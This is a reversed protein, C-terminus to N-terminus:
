NRAKRAPRAAAPAPASETQTAAVPAAAVPAPTALSLRIFGDGGKTGARAITNAGASEGTAGSGVSAGGGGGANAQVVVNGAENKASRGSESGAQGPVGTYGSMPLTGGAQAMAETQNGGNGGSDGGSGGRSGGPAAAGGHGDSAAVTQHQWVDAGAFGAILAGTNANTLSTPNGDGSRGGNASGGEGGTGITLKYVGPALYRVTRLPAAGAGGGGGGKDMSGGGGGGGGGGVLEINYSGETMHPRPYQYTQDRTPGNPYVTLYCQQNVAGVAPNIITFENRAQDFNTTACEPLSSQAFAPASAVAMCLLALRIENKM